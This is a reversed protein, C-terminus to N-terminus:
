SRCVSPRLYFLIQDALYRHGATNPHIADPLIGVHYSGNMQDTEGFWGLALADLFRVHETQAAARVADRARLMGPTPLNNVWIPGVVFIQAKRAREKVTRFTAEAAMETRRFSHGKDNRSGVIIVVDSQEDVKEAQEPYTRADEAPGRALYGSGNAATILIDAGLAEGILHPFRTEYGGDEDVGRVYSDGVFTVLLRRDGCPEAARPGRPALSMGALVAVALTLVALVIAGNRGSSLRDLVQRGTM